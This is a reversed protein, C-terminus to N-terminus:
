EDRKKNFINMSDEGFLSVISNKMYKENFEKETMGSKKKKNRYEDLSVVKDKCLKEERKKNLDIINSM